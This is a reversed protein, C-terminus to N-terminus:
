PTPQPRRRATWLGLGALLATLAGLGLVGLVPAGLPGVYVVVVDFQCTANPNETDRFSNTTTGVPFFSGSPLGSTQETGDCDASGSVVYTVQASGDIDAVNERINAPCTLVCVASVASPATFAAAIFALVILVRSLDSNM